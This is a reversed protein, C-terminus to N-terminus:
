QVHGQALQPDLVAQLSHATSGDGLEAFSRQKQNRITRISGEVTIAHGGHRPPTALVTAINATVTPFTSLRRMQVQLSSTCDWTNFRSITRSPLAMHHGDALILQGRKHHITPHELIHRSNLLQCIKNLILLNSFLDSRIRLCSFTPSAPLRM